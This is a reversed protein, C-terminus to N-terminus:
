LEVQRRQRFNIGTCDGDQYGPLTLSYFTAYLQLEAPIRGVQQAQEGQVTEVLLELKM